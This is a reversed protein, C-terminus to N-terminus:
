VWFVIRASNKRYALMALFSLALLMVLAAVWSIVEPNRGLLPSRILDLFYAFPNFIVIWHDAPLLRPFWFIPTIFFM